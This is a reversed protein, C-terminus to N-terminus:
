ELAQGIKKGLQYAAELSQTDPIFQVRLGPDIVEFKMEELEKNILKVAEGSWGYSGFAAAIKKKPKLGKMYTLFDMVTPFLGNNLTPSGVIVAGADLVETIVDSRHSARLHLPKVEVGLEGLGSVIAEAMKQTSQWMTDYVVVAKKKPKQESWEVYAKIIKLPDQRWIIGHDPCITKIALGMQTVKEVLQLILPAYLLLINAFYKKAHPMIAEGVQDDFRELSAYHQGFGDSAFLLEEEKLYSFMSDPWHVMRTELFQLTRKGLPLVGGNEVPQYNWKERFHLSLNKQGMKSCYLPKGEGIKHMVRPLGGSHDMETHNSVVQDIKKPDIIQTVQDLLQDAFEKKVTDILTVKEDLVLYANYTTGEPTAYGHFDRLNWDVVGVWYIDKAIEVPKM